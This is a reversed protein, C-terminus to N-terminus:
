EPPQKPIYDFISGTELSDVLRALWDYYQEAHSLKELDKAILLQLKDDNTQQQLNELEERSRVIQRQNSHLAKKWKTAFLASFTKYWDNEARYLDKREGKKWTQHVMHIDLLSRVGTSMSTKSMGLEDRMDDLTMPEDKFYMTGYLRGVSPTIGFLDMNKAVSQIVRQRVQEVEEWEEMVFGEGTHPSEPLSGNGNDQNPQVVRRNDSL